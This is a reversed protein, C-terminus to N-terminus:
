GKSRAVFLGCKAPETAVEHSGSPTAPRMEYPSPLATRAKLGAPSSAAAPGPRVPPPIATSPFASWASVLALRPKSSPFVDAETLGYQDIITRVQAIAGSKETKLVEAIQAELQAKQQLLTKYDTTM